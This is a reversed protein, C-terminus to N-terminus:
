EEAPPLYEMAGTEPNPFAISSTFCTALYSMAETARRMSARIDPVGARADIQVRTPRNLGKSITLDMIRLAHLPIGEKELWAEIQTTPEPEPIFGEVLEEMEIVREAMERERAMSANLAELLIEERTM